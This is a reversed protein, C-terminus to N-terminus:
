GKEWFSTIHHHQCVQVHKSPWRGLHHPAWSLNYPMYLGYEATENNAYNLIPLLLLKIPSFSANYNWLFLPSAPYIVDVQICVSTLIAIYMYM